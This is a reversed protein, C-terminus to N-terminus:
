AADVLPEELRIMYDFAGLSANAGSGMAIIIQKYASDTVDGAAFVGPISTQGKNDVVIEGRSNMLIGDKIWETNPVLGIQVFIGALEIHHTEGTARNTYNLGQVRAGDGVVETTQAQTIIDINGMSNAKTQLVEDARLKSDFELVTVHEVIGALDIAAEIGSNGGGIVAVRKGKFLPGDCHPCYAVGKGRYEQEGPVNMERWRAGTAILVTKSSLQAGSELELQFNRGNILRSARQGDMIDVDYDKVHEELNAVLKPGETAKVSIFNEIGVTESVQGGFKDAVIGTRLGKRAAYIAASAGAPGGGVVLVDFEEKASIKDAQKKVSDTDIRALIDKLSIRGQSFVEGNLYVSPVAMINRANVEDQYLAGDIMVNTINPNIAAMINIAQVVDPCNQCSLSIFTEFKFSGELTRIQDIVDADLKIPHGGSHLLALVLSTFEHGMPIGAFSIQSNNEPNVITLLQRRDNEVRHLTIKNSLITIENALNALEIGKSSDDASLHLEIPRTLNALYAELQKKLNIDLM